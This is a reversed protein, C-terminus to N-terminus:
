KRGKKAKYLLFAGLALAGLLLASNSSPAAAALPARAPSRPGGEPLLIVQGPAFAAYGLGPALKNPSRESPPHRFGGTKLVWAEVARGWDNPQLSADVGNHAAIDRATVGYASALGALTDDKNLITPIWLRMIVDTPNKPQGITLRPDRVLSPRPHQAVRLPRALLSPARLKAPPRYVQAPQRVVVPRQLNPLAGLKEALEHDPDASPTRPASQGPLKPQPRNAFLEAGSFDGPLRADLDLGFDLPNKM